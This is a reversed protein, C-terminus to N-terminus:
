SAPKVGNEVWNTLADFAATLEEPKFTCHGFAAGPVNRQVLLSTAGANTVATLFEGEHKRRPVFPDNTTQLTLTPITLAGTPKYYKDLYNLADPTAEFRGVGDVGPVEGNIQALLGTPLAYPAPLSSSAFPM